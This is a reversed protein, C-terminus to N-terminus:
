KTVGKLKELTRLGAYGPITLGFLFWLERPIAGFYERMAKIFLAHLDPAIMAFVAQVPALILLFYMTWLLAPRARRVFPDDSKLATMIAKFRNEVSALAGTARAKEVEGEIRAAENKDPIVRRLIDGFLGFVDGIMTASAEMRDRLFSYDLGFVM